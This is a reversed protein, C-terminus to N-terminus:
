ECYKCPPYDRTYAPQKLYEARDYTWFQSVAPYTKIVTNWLEDNPYGFMKKKEVKRIYINQVPNRLDDFSVTGRPADVKSKVLHDLFAEAGPWKGGTQSMVADFLLATTYSNESFYSPIKGYKTRYEKVFAENEPTELAASYHLPSVAGIVEDGMQPLVFEDFSTGSGILRMKPIIGAAALQKPLQLAGAGVPLIFIADADTKISSIYPSYDVLNIPPWMKQVIKGGCAEFSRQFGGVVEYGFAYDAAITVVKKIGNACAWEGFPHSPQSSTWSTRALYPYKDADRQTLNDSAAISAIYIVKERTSVPALAYGTSALVGGVLMQVQDQKILKEAKLVATAPKAQTDEVILKVTTGHFQGKHDDLYMKFGNTSDTAIQALPGTVPMLFGIRLEDAGAKPAAAAALAAAATLAGLPGKGKM